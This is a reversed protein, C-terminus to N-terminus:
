AHLPLARVYSLRRGCRTRTASPRMSTRRRCLVCKCAPEVGLLQVVVCEACPEYLLVLVGSFGSAARVDLPVGKINRQWSKLLQKFSAQERANAPLSGHEARWQLAAKVLLVGASWWIQVEQQRGM